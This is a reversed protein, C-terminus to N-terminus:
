RHVAWTGHRVGTPPIGFREAKRAGVAASLDANVANMAHPRNLTIVALHGHRAFTAASPPKDSM